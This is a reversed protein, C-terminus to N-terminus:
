PYAVSFYLSVLHNLTRLIMQSGIEEGMAILAIGITAFAQFTDDDKEKDLLHETCEHLMEQVKLVNGSGAYSCASVLVSAQKSLPHEIAKLTELTALSEENKGLYLLGLALAYFKAFPEKLANEDREMMTQLISSAVDGNCTGVFVLGLSLAANASLEVNLGTDTVINSLIEGIDDRASGAYALGLGSIASMRFLVNKDEIYETLLAIAPDSENRVGCNVLGIALLAGAKINDESSYLFKDIQTLGMEVDWLMIMGISASASLMGHDKNKYIWNNSGDNEEALVLKDKGFGANLFGNVISAALNQKASDVTAGGGLISTRTNELHSKYIDEPVKPELVDLERAYALFRESFRSNWLIEKVKEGDPGSEITATDQESFQVQQRALLYALQKRMLPDTCELFDSKIMQYDNLKLSISLAQPHQAFKKYITHVVRLSKLDDPSGLYSACSVIYNCVRQYTNVDVFEPIKELLIYGSEENAFLSSLELALDCADPEANHAMFFPIIVMALDILQKQTITGKYVEEDGAALDQDLSLLLAEQMIEASLHRVFEHGWAGIESTKSGLLRFKLCDRRGFKFVPEKKSLEGDVDPVAPAAEEPKKGQQDEKSDQQDRPAVTEEPAATSPIPVFYTMGLVALIDALLVKEAASLSKGDANATYFQTLEDYAPRLFKLPKPVSTMSSTSSKILEAVRELAAKKPQGTSQGVIVDKHKLLENKLAL